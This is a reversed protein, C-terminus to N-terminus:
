RRSKKGPWPLEGTLEELGADESVRVGFRTVEVEPLDEGDFWLLAVTTDTTAYHRALEMMDLGQDWDEFWVDQAVEDTATQSVGVARLRHAVSGPPIPSKPPIWARANRLSTSRAAYRVIGREMTVYACPVDSLTAFRSAAAPFSVRFEAAMHEIVQLSPESTPLLQRWMTYPMLLEAAFVDCTVENPHRKAFGWAPVEEHSSALGLKIHAVEHCITFRRRALPELSNVTIIHKGNPLTMTTGSEGEGLEEEIVKANATKVYVSLDDRVNSIDLGAIFSRALQQAEAEDM